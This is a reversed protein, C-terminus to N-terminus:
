EPQADPEAPAEADVADGSEDTAPEPYPEGTAETRTLLARDLLRDPDVPQAEPLEFEWEHDDRITFPMLAEAFLDFPPYQYWPKPTRKHTKVTQYRREGVVVKSEDYLPEPEKRLIVDYDGYWLFPVTLPSRGVEEDNLYVLAGSPNTRITIRREVCGAAAGVCLIGGACLAARAWTRRQRDMSGRMVEMTDAM